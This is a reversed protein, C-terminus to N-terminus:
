RPFGPKAEAIVAAGAIVIGKVDANAAASRFADHLQGVVAENLANMADPRNITLRAVGDEIETRVLRFAFPKGSAAQDALIKPVNLEWRTAVTEVLALSRDVGHRNIM